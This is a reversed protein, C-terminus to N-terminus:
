RCLLRRILPVSFDQRSPASGRSWSAASLILSVSGSSVEQFSDCRSSVPCERARFESAELMGEDLIGKGGHKGM